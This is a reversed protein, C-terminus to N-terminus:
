FSKQIAFFHVGSDHLNATNKYFLLKGIMIKDYGIHIEDLEDNSNIFHLLGASTYQGWHNSSICLSWNNNPLTLSIRTNSGDFYLSNNWEYPSQIDELTIIEQTETIDFWTNDKGSHTWPLRADIGTSLQIPNTDM